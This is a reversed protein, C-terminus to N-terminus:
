DHNINFVKDLFGKIFIFAFSLWSLGIVFWTVPFDWEDNIDEAWDAMKKHIYVYTACMGIVWILLFFLFEMTILKKFIPITNGVGM